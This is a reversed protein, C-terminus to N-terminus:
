IESKKLKRKNLLCLNNYTLTMISNIEIDIETKVITRGDPEQLCRM